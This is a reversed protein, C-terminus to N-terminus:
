CPLFLDVIAYACAFMLHKPLHSRNLHHLRFYYELCSYDLDPCPAFSKHYSTFSGIVTELYLTIESLKISIFSRIVIIPCLFSKDNSTFLEIDTFHTIKSMHILHDLSLLQVTLLESQKHHSTFSGFVSQDPLRSLVHIYLLLSPM